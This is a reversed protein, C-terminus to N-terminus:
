EGELQQLSIDFEKMLLEEWDCFLKIRLFKAALYIAGAAIHCPKFELCLLTQLRCVCLVVVCEKQFWNLKDMKSLFNNSSKKFVFFIVNEAYGDNVFNWAIQALQSLSHTQPITLRKIAAILPKYPHVVNLNFGLTVLVLREGMLLLAKQEDYM